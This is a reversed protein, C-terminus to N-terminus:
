RQWYGTAELLLERAAQGAGLKKLADAFVALDTAKLKTPNGKTYGLLSLIAEGAADSRAASKVALVGAAPLDAGTEAGAKYMLARAQAPPTIDMATWLAFLRAAKATEAKSNAADILRETVVRVSAPSAEGGALMILGDVYALEFADPAAVGEFESAATWRAAGSRDGAALSAKAFTLAFQAADANRPLRSIDSRLLRAAARFRAPSGMASVLADNFARAKAATNAARDTSRSLAMGNPTKPRYEADSLLARYAARHDQPTILGAEAALNAGQVRIEPPLSERKAMAAALDPRGSVAVANVPAKLKGKTSIALSVGSDFRANPPNPATGSAAVVASFLWSDNVGQGAAMEVALEAGSFNNQLAACVARLKAWYAGEKVPGYAVPQCAARENGLALQLDSAIEEPELGRPAKNLRTMLEAAAKAEGLEFMIRAREALVDDAKDGDPKLAPSLIARRLLSREAPTLNRTRVNRMLPLLTEAESARWMNSPLAQEGHELFGVGWPDVEGLGSSTITQAHGSFALAVASAGLALAKISFM